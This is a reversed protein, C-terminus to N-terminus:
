QEAESCSAATSQPDLSCQTSDASSCDQVPSLCQLVQRQQVPPMGAGLEHWLSPQGDVAVAADTGCAASPQCLGLVQDLHAAAKDIINYSLNDQQQTRSHQQQQQQQQQQGSHQEEPGAAAALDEPATGTPIQQSCRLPTRQALRAKSSPALVAAILASM